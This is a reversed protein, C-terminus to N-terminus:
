WNKAHSPWEDGEVLFYDPINLPGMVKKRKALAHMIVPIHLHETIRCKQCKGVLIREGPVTEYSFGGWTRGGIVGEKYGYAILRPRPESIHDFHVGDYECQMCPIWLPDDGLITKFAQRYQNEREKEIPLLWQVFALIEPDIPGQNNEIKFAEIISQLYARLEKSIVAM